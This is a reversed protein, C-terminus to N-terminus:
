PKCIWVWGACCASCIIPRAYGRIALTRFGVTPVDTLKNVGLHPNSRISIREVLPSQNGYLRTDYSIHCACRMASVYEPNQARGRWLPTTVLGIWPFAGMVAVNGNTTTPDVAADPRYVHTDNVLLHDAAPTFSPSWFPSRGAAWVLYRGMRARNCNGSWLLAGTLFAIHVDALGCSPSRNDTNRERHHRYYNGNKGNRFCVIIEEVFYKVPMIDNLGVRSLVASWRGLRCGSLNSRGRWFWNM